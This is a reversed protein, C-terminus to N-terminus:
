QHRSHVVARDWSYSKRLVEKRVSTYQHAQESTRSLTHACVANNLLHGSHTSFLVAFDASSFGGTQFAAGGNEDQVNLGAPHILQCRINTLVQVATRVAFIIYSLLIIFHRLSHQCCNAATPLESVTISLFYSFQIVAILLITSFLFLRPCSNM